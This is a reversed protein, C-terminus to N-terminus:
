EQGDEGEDEEEGRSLIHGPKLLCLRAETDPPYPQFPADQHDSGDPDWNDSEEESPLSVSDNQHYSPLYSWGQYSRGLQVLSSCVEGTEMQFFKKYEHEDKCRRENGAQALPIHVKVAGDDDLYDLAMFAPQCGWCHQADTSKNLGFVIRLLRSTDLRPAPYLRILLCSLVMDPFPLTLDGFVGCTFRNLEVAPEISMPRWNGKWQSLNDQGLLLHIIEGQKVCDLFPSWEQKQPSADGNTLFYEPGNELSDDYKQRVVPLSSHIAENLDIALNRADKLYRFHNRANEFRGSCSLWQLGMQHHHSRLELGFINETYRESSGGGQRITAFNVVKKAQEALKIADFGDTSRDWDKITSSNNKPTYYHLEEPTEVQIILFAPFVFRGLRM